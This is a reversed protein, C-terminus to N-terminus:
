SSNSRWWGFVELLSFTRSRRLRNAARSRSIRERGALLFFVPACFHSVIQTLFLAVSTHALDEAPYAAGSFYDRVHDLAMVAMVLGRLLDVSVIRSSRAAATVPMATAPIVSTASSM